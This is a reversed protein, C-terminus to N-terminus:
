GDTANMHQLYVRVAILAEDACHQGRMRDECIADAALGLAYRQRRYLEADGISVVVDDETPLEVLPPHTLRALM